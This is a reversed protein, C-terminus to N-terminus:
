GPDRVGPAACSPRQPYGCGCRGDRESTDRQKRAGSIVWTLHKSRFRHKPFSPPGSELLPDIRYAPRIDGPRHCAAPDRVHRRLDHPEPDGLRGLGDPAAQYRQGPAYESECGAQHHSTRGNTPIGTPGAVWGAERATPCRACRTPATPALGYGDRRSSRALIRTGAARASTTFDATCAQTATSVSSNQERGDAPDTPMVTGVDHGGLAATRRGPVLGNVVRVRSPYSATPM